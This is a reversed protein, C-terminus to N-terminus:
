TLVFNHWEVYLALHDDLRDMRKTTCWTKRFLRNVNARFMAATHNLDFLPDFGIRKLEGQGVDCGRRGQFTRHTIKPFYPKIWGPYKPNQDSSLEAGNAIAGRLEAFLSAAAVARDDKRPGYKKLSISALPGKAPMSCVRYGLIKRTKEEVALPISLPLCKSREFSEMEDFHFSQVQNEPLFRSSLYARQRLRAQSALYVLKRAVTKLNLDLLRAMRRQSVGSSFLAHVSENFQRKKQRFDPLLTARSFSRRCHLCLFRAIKKQDSSRFFFGKRVFRVPHLSGKESLPPSPCPSYPCKKPFNSQSTSKM